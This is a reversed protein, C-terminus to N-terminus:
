FIEPGLAAALSLAKEHMTIEIFGGECCGCM